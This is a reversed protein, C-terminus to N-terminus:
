LRFASDAKLYLDNNYNTKGPDGKPGHFITMEIYFTNCEVSRFSRPKDTTRSRQKTSIFVLTHKFSYLSLCGSSADKRLAIPQILEDFEFLLWTFNFNVCWQFQKCFTENWVLKYLLKKSRYSAELGGVM